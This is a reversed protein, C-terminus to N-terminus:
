IAGKELTKELGIVILIQLGLYIELLFVIKFVHEWLTSATLSYSTLYNM